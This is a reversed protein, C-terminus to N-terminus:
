IYENKIQISKHGLYILIFFVVSLFYCVMGSINEGINLTICITEQFWIIRKHRHWFIASTILYSLDKKMSHRRLFEMAKFYVCIFYIFFYVGHEYIILSTVTYRYDTDQDNPETDRYRGSKFAWRTSFDPIFFVFVFFM